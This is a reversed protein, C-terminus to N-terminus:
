EIETPINRKVVFRFSTFIGFWWGSLEPPSKTADYKARITHPKSFEEERLKDFDWVDITFKLTEGDFVGQKIAGKNNRRIQALDGNFMLFSGSVANESQILVLRFKTILEPEAFLDRYYGINGNWTGSIDPVLPEEIKIIEDTKDTDGCGQWYILALILVCSKLSRMTRM